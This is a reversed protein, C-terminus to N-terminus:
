SIKQSYFTQRIEINSIGFDHNGTTAIVLVKKDLTSFSHSIAEWQQTGTQNIVIKNPNVLSNHEALDGLHLVLKINLTSIHEEVWNVMLDVIPQNRKFKM